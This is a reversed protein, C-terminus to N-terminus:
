VKLTNKLNKAPRFSIVNRSEIKATEGTKPNRGVREAKHKVVFTGLGMIKVEKELAIGNSLINFFLDVIETSDVLSLGPGKSVEMALDIKKINKKEM